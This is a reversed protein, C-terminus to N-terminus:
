GVRNGAWRRCEVVKRRTSRPSSSYSRTSFASCTMSDKPQSAYGSVDLLERRPRRPRKIESGSEPLLAGLVFQAAEQHDRHRRIQTNLTSPRKSSPSESERLM